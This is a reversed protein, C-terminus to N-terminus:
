KLDTYFVGVCWEEDTPDWVCLMMDKGAATLSISGGPHVTNTPFNVTQSGGNTLLIWFSFPKTNDPINDFTFTTESTDVTGTFFMYSSLDLSQTGGGISGIENVAYSVTELTADVITRLGTTNTPADQATPDTISQDDFIRSDYQELDLNYEIGKQSKRIVRYTQATINRDPATVTIIEGVDVSKADTGTKISLKKDAYVSRGYIYSLVKKATTDSSVCNLEYTKDTGFNSHCALSIQKNAYNVYATKITDDTSAVSCDTIECNDYYGDDEGFSAVSSGAKDVAICWEGSSNKYIRSRMAFLVDNVYDRGQRQDCICMSGMYSTYPLDTLAATISASNIDLGLGWKDNGLISTLLNVINGTNLTPPSSAFGGAIDATINYRTGGFDVQEKAFRITSIARGYGHDTAPIGQGNDLTYDDTSVTKGDRKITVSTIAALNVLYDFCRIGYYDGTTDFIDSDVTLQTASDKATILAYTGQTINYAYRGVDDDTFTATSDILKNATTSTTTSTDSIYSQINPCPSGDFNGYVVPCVAGIDIASDHWDAATVLKSPILKEFDQSQESSTITAEIGTTYQKIVGTFLVTDDDSDFFQIELGRIEEEDFTDDWRGDGNGLTITVDSKEEIGYFIDSLESTFEPDEKIDGTYLYTEEGSYVEISVIGGYDFGVDVSSMGRTTGNKTTFLHLGTAPVETVVKNRVEQLDVSFTNTGNFFLNLRNYSTEKVNRYPTIYTDTGSFTETVSKYGSGGIGVGALVCTGSNVLYDIEAFCITNQVVNAISTKQIQPRAVNTGAGTVALVAAGGSQTFTATEDDNTMTYGDLDSAFTHTANISASIGSGSAGAFATAQKGAGDEFVIKYTTSGADTGAYASFNKTLHWFMGAVPDLKTDGAVSVESAELVAPTTYYVDDDVALRITDASREINCLVGM